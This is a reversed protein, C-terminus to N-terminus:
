PWLLPYVMPEQIFLAIEDLWEDDDSEIEEGEGLERRSLADPGVHKSTPVHVLTFNFMLIGQIWRNM